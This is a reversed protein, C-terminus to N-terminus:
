FTRGAMVREIEEVTRPVRTMNHCGNETIILDDELRIGGFKFHEVIKPINLHKSFKPNQFAPRLVAEIFYLGPENSVVMGAELIRNMRLNCLGPGELRRRGKPYGGVDHTDLGILHGLGHPFFLAPIHHHLVEDVDSGFVFKKDLLGQGIVRMALLHMDAWEIGPKVAEEVARQATLVIEYVERQQTTFKGVFLTL